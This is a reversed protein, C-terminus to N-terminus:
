IHLGMKFASCVADDVMSSVIAVAGEGQKKLNLQILRGMLLEMDASYAVTM